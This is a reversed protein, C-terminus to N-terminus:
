RRSARGLPTADRSGSGREASFRGPEALQISQVTHTEDSTIVGVVIGNELVDNEIHKELGLYGARGYWVHQHDRGPKFFPSDIRIRWAPLNGIPTRLSEQAEVTARTRFGGPEEKFWQQGPHLPYALVQIRFAIPDGISSAEACPLNGVQTMWLGDRTQHYRHLITLGGIAFTETFREYAGSTDACAIDISIDFPVDSLVQPPSEPTHLQVITRGRLKWSSGVSLPYWGQTSSAESANTRAKSSMRSTALEPATSRSSQLCGATMAAAILLFVSTRLTAARPM